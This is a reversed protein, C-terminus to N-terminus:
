NASRGIVGKAAERDSRSLEFKIRWFLSGIERAKTLVSTSEVLVHALLGLVLLLLFLLLFRSQGLLSLNFGKWGLALRRVEENDFSILSTLWHEVFLLPVEDVEM